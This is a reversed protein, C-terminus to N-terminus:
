SDFSKWKEWVDYKDTEYSKLLLFKIKFCHYECQPACCRSDERSKWANRLCKKKVTADTLIFKINKNNKEEEDKHVTPASITQM